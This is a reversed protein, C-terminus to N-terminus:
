VHAAGEHQATCVGHLHADIEAAFVRLAGRAYSAVGDPFRCAGRGPLLGVRAHLRQVASGDGAVVAAFDSAVAPVGFMCPGCQSASEGAAYALTQAVEHLACGSTPLVRLVGSGIRCGLPQLHATSWTATDAESASLFGGSLGGVGVPAPAVAGADALIRRVPDGAQVQLVTPAPVAGTVTVLRPGPESRTGFSRFWEPGRQAVLGVYWVTEANLAVTPHLRRGSSDRLGQVVPVAKHLPRALGGQALSVLSSEESSVYRGPVSLVPLGAALLRRETASGRHAAFRYSRCILEAGRVLEDLHETVVYEDKHAGLEGDCANVILEAGSAAAARMKRGTPFAGGGRGSLGSSDVLDAINM